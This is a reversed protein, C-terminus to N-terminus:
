VPGIPSNYRKPIFENLDIDILQSHGDVRALTRDGTEHTQSIWTDPPYVISVDDPWHFNALTDLCGDGFCVDVDTFWIIDAKSQLAAINRGIARRGLYPFDLSIIKVNIDYRRRFWDVMWYTQHDNPDFCIMATVHASRVPHLILSSLQYCLAAAYHPYHKAFCHSVVEIKIM